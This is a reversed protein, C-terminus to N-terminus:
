YDGGEKENFLACGCEDIDDEEEAADDDNTPPPPARALQSKDPADQHRRYWSLRESGVTHGEQEHKRRCCELIEELSELTPYGVVKQRLDTDDQFDKHLIRHIHTRVCKLGSGQGGRDPPYMKALEIYESALQFRGVTRSPTQPVRYFLPPYELVSESSMVGDAKTVELCEEVDGYDEIGGNAFIPIRDGYLEVARAITEWDARGTLEAKQKRTRGHITLLHVGADVLKGYLALSAAPTDFGDHPGGPPDPAPLLRVKVSLPVRLHAVLHRVLHLLAEEQELLFAGYNGRRAIGQPCGCNIDIGDVHPELERAAALMTAPDSGCLQAILPRDQGALWTGLFKKRYMVSETVLRAHVMPTFCLNSGYRRCLLRFPLDSQDVMPAVVLARDHRRANPNPYRQLLKQIWQRDVPIPPPPLTVPLADGAPVVAPGEQHYGAKATVAM